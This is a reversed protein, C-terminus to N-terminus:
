EYSDHGLVTFPTGSVQSKDGVQLLLDDTSFHGIIAERLDSAAIRLADLRDRGAQADYFNRLAQINERKLIGRRQRLTVALGYAYDVGKSLETINVESQVSSPINRVELSPKARRVWISYGGGLAVAVEQLAAAKGRILPMIDLYPGPAILELSAALSGASASLEVLSLSQAVLQYYLDSMVDDEFADGKRDVRALAAEIESIIAEGNTILKNLAMYFIFLQAGIRNLRRKDKSESISKWPIATIVREIIFKVLDFM